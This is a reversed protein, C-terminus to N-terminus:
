CNRCNRIFLPNATGKTMVAALLHCLGVQAPTEWRSGTKVFLRTAIIDAAPNETLLLTIGNDLIRRHTTRHHTASTMGQTLTEL